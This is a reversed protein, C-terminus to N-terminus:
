PCVFTREAGTSDAGWSGVNPAKARVAFFFEVGLPPVSVTLCTGTTETPTCSTSFDPSTSRAVEYLTAGGQADWCFQDPSPFATSGSIEDIIGFGGDGPCQNDQGDNVEVAGPFTLPDFDNCDCSGGRGDGDLGNADSIPVSYFEQVNDTDQDALYVVTSSDPNISFGSSFIADVNGVDGGLVLPGNLKTPTGNLIPVSYLEFVDFTDQHALYVARASDPSISFVFVDGGVAVLPGNLKTPTGGTIPVSYLELINDTDQDAVYVVRSSDPSISFSSSLFAAADGLDGGAVMPGNLKTPTGGTIPVSYLEVVQATDQDARYVVTSSDLSWGAGSVDGDLVMPGNLKTPTGGSIPVSYLEFVDFTDQDALYLVRSSDPIIGAAFVEGGLVLPENLQCGRM